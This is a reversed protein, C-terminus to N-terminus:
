NHPYIELLAEEAFLAEMYAEDTTLGRAIADNYRADFIGEGCSMLAPNNKALAVTEEITKTINGGKAPKVQSRGLIGPDPAYTPEEAIENNQAVVKDTPEQSHVKEIRQFGFNPINNNIEAM